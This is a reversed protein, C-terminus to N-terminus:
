IRFWIKVHRLDIQVPSARLIRPNRNGLGPSSARGLDIDLSHQDRDM